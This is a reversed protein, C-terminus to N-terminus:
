DEWPRPRNQSWKMDVPDRRSKPTIKLSRALALVERDQTDCMRVLHGYNKDDISRRGREAWLNRSAVVCRCYLTLLHHVAGHFHGPRMATVTSRWIEAVEPEMDAPPEPKHLEPLGLEVVHLDHDAKSRRPM